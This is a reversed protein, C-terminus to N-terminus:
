SDRTQLTKGLKEVIRAWKRMGQQLGQNKGVELKNSFGQGCMDTRPGKVIGLCFVTLSAFVPVEKNIRM